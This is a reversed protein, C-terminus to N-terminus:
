NKDLYGSIMPKAAQALALARDKVLQAQSAPPYGTINVHHKPDDNPDLSSGTAQVAGVTIPCYGYAPKGRRSTGVEDSVERLTKDQVLGSLLYTSCTHTPDPLFLETKPSRDKRIHDSYVVFRTLIEDPTLLGKDAEPM